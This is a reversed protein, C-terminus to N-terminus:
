LAVLKGCGCPCPFSQKACWTMLLQNGHISTICWAPCLRMSTRTNWMQEVNTQLSRRHLRGQFVMWFLRWALDGTTPPHEHKADSAGGSESGLCCGCCGRRGATAWGSPHSQRGPGVKNLWSIMVGWWLVPFIALRTSFFWGVLRDTKWPKYLPTPLIWWKVLECARWVQRHGIEFRMGLLRGCVELIVCSRGWRAQLTLIGFSLAVVVCARM